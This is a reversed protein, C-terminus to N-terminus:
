EAALAAAHNPLGELYKEAELAAMCGLGAATVAQRFIDDAVDGAAFVGSISTATMCAGNVAISDGIGADSVVLSSGIPASGILRRRGNMSLYRAAWIVPSGVDPIFVADDDALEDVLRGVFQPHLPQSGRRATALDDLKGRTTKYHALSDELLTVVDM